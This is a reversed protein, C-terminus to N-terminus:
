TESEVKQFFFAHVFADDVKMGGLVGTEVMREQAAPCCLVDAIVCRVVGLVKLFALFHGNNSVVDVAVDALAFGAFSRM